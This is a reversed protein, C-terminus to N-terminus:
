TWTELRSFNEPTVFVYRGYVLRVSIKKKDGGIARWAALIDAYVSKTIRERQWWARVEWEEIIAFGMADLHSLRDRLEDEHHSFRMQWWQWRNPGLHM